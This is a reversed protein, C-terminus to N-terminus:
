KRNQELFDIVDFLSDLQFDIAEEFENDMQVLDLITICHMGARKAAITGLKSDEIVLCHSPKVNLKQATKLFVEPDPKAKKVQDGATVTDFEFYPDFNNINKLVYDIPSSSAVAITIKKNKLYSLLPILGPRNLSNKVKWKEEMAVNRRITSVPWVCDFQPYKATVTDFIDDGGGILQNYYESGGAIGMEDCVELFTNRTLRESDIMLGDLDFIVADIKM